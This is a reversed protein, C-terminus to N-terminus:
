ARLDQYRAIVFDEARKGSFMLVGFVISLLAAFFKLNTVGRLVMDGIVVLASAAAWVYWGSSSRALIKESTM